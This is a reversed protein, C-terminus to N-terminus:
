LFVKNQGGYDYSSIILNDARGPILMVPVIEAPSNPPVTDSRQPFFTYRATVGADAPIWIFHHNLYAQLNQIEGSHRSGMQHM